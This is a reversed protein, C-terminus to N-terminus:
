LGARRHLLPGPDRDAGPGARRGEQRRDPHCPAGLDRHHGLDAPDPHQAAAPALSGAHRHGTPPWAGLGGVDNYFIAYNFYAWFWAVFFMVESAIFLLMGYRLHLKVVPHPQGAVVSEHDRRAVLGGHHLARHALGVIFIWPTGNVPLGWFGAYDKNMWFVAGAMMVFAGLSGVM